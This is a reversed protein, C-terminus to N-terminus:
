HCWSVLKLTVWWSTKLDLWWQHWWQCCYCRWCRSRLEEQFTVIVLWSPSHSSGKGRFLLLSQFQSEQLSWVRIWYLSLHQSCFVPYWFSTNLNTFQYKLVSMNIEMFSPKEKFSFLLKIFTDLSKTFVRKGLAGLRELCFYPLFPWLSSTHSLIQVWSPVMMYLDVGVSCQPQIGQLCQTDGWHTKVRSYGHGISM